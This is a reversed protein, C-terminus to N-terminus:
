PEPTLTELPLLNDPVGPWVRQLDTSSVFAERMPRSRGRMPPVAGLLQAVATYEPATVPVITYRFSRLDLKTAIVLMRSDDDGLDYNLGAIERLELRYNKSQNVFLLIPEVPKPINDLSVYQVFVKKESGEYGFFDTLAKRGLDAQGTRNRPIERVLIEPTSFRIGDVPAVEIDAAAGATRAPTRARPTVAAFRMRGNAMARERVRADDLACLTGAALQGTLWEDIGAMAATAEDGHMSQISFAEWNGPQAGSAIASQGLGRMTLNGSGTVLRLNGGQRFWSFKPHFTSRPHEHFFVKASLIGDYQVVKEGLFLLAEANTIADVGVILQFQQRRDLMRAINPQAFFAEIGGRSAFAFVGGGASAKAAAADIAELLKTTGPQQFVFTM